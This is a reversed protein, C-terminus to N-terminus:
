SKQSQSRSKEPRSMGCKHYIMNFFPALADAPSQKGDYNGEVIIQEALCEPGQYTASVPIPVRLYRGKTDSIGAIWDFPPALGLSVIYHGYKLLRDPYLNEIEGILIGDPFYTMLETDVSWVEGTEFAFAVSNTMTESAAVFSCMGIGDEARIWFPSDAIFPVLNVPGSSAQDKLENSSWRKGSDSTPFLRLWIASGKSLSIDHQPTQRFPITSWQKGLPHNPLRFRAPGDRAEAKPFELPTPLSPQTAAIQERLHVEIKRSLADRDARRQGDSVGTEVHYQIPYRLHGMDFPLEEPLGFATNMIPMMVATTKARLAYGYETMVSPNPVLKGDETSAVFTVDPIFLDCRDIKDLITATVPPTGPVGQTDSDIKLEVGLSSDASIRDAASDLAKRIFDKNIKAPRDSQWAYFAVIRRM